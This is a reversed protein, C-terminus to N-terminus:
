REESDRLCMFVMAGLVRPWCEGVSVTASGQLASSMQEPYADFSVQGLLAVESSRTLAHEPRPWNQAQSTSPM